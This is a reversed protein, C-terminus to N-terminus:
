RMTVCRGIMFRVVGRRSHTRKAAVSSIPHVPHTFESLWRHLRSMPSFPLTTTTPLPLPSDGKGNTGM